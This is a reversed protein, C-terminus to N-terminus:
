STKEELFGGCMMKHADETQEKASDNLLSWGRKADKESETIGAMAQLDIIAKIGQEETLM